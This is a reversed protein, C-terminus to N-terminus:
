NELFSVFSTLSQLQDENRMLPVNPVTPKKPFVLGTVSDFTWGEDRQLVGLLKEVEEPHDVYGVLEALAPLKISLYAKGKTHYITNTLWWSSNLLLLNPIKFFVTGILQLSKQRYVQELCSMYPQILPPWQTTRLLTFVANREKLWLKKGVEWIQGLVPHLTKEQDPIRKWLLKAHCRLKYQIQICSSLIIIHNWRCNLTACTFAWYSLIYKPWIWVVPM